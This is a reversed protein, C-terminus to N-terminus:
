RELQASKDAGGDKMLKAVFSTEIVSSLGMAKGPAPERINERESPVTSRPWERQHFASLAVATVPLTGENIGHALAHAHAVNETAKIIRLKNRHTLKDYPRGFRDQIVKALEKDLKITIAFVQEPEISHQRAMRKLDILDTYVSEPQHSEFYNKGLKEMVMTVTGVGFLTGSLPGYIGSVASKLWEFGELNPNLQGMSSLLMGAVTTVIARAAGAILNYKGRYALHKLELQLPKLAKDGLQNEDAAKRMDAITLKADPAKGLVRAIDHRYLSLERNLDAQNRFHARGLEFALMGAGALLAAGTGVLGALVVTTITAAQGLFPYVKDSMWDFYEVSRIENREMDSRVEPVILSDPPPAAASDTAIEDSM